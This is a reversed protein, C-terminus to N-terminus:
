LATGGNKTYSEKVTAQLAKWNVATHGNEKSISLLDHVTLLTILLADRQGVVKKLEARQEEICKVNLDETPSQSNWISSILRMVKLNDLMRLGDKLEPPLLDYFQKAEKLGGDSALLTIIDQKTIAM